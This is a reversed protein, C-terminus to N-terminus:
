YKTHKINIKNHFKLDRLNTLYTFRSARIKYEDLNEALVSNIIYIYTNYM